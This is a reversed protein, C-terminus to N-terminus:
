MAEKVWFSYDGYQKVVQIVSLFYAIIQQAIFIYGDDGNSIFFKDM